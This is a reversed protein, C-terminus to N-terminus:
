HFDDVFNSIPSGEVEIKMKKKRDNKVRLLVFLVTHSHTFFLIM